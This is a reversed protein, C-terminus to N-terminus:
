TMHHYIQQLLKLYMTNIKPPILHKRLLAVSNVMIVHIEVNKLTLNSKLRAM